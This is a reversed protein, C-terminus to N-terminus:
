LSIIEIRGQWNKVLNHGRRNDFKYSFGENGDTSPHPPSLIFELWGKSKSFSFNDLIYWLLMSSSPTEKMGFLFVWHNQATIANIPYNEKELHFPFDM